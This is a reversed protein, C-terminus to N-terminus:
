GSQLAEDACIVGACSPGGGIRGVALEKRDPWMRQAMKESLRGQGCWGLSGQM